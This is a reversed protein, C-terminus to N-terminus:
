ERIHYVGEALGRVGLGEIALVRGADPHDSRLRHGSDAITTVYLTTLDPGGFAPCAPYPIPLDVRRLVRGDPGICAVQQALVLAVWLNGDADVTAGDPGSGLDRCDILDRRAGIRGTAPDYPHARIVGDLSDAFYLTRGDPAFCIANGVQLGGELRATGGDADLRWLGGDSPTGGTGHVQTQASLFRGARDAKGDNLRLTADRPLLSIPRTAGTESDLRYFGDALAAVLGRSALGISGVPQDIAFRARGAGDPTAAHILGALADVWWLWGTRPDWLPSEGLRARHDGLFRITTM